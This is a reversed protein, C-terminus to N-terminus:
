EVLCDTYLVAGIGAPIMPIRSYRTHTHVNTGACKKLLAVATLAVQTSGM